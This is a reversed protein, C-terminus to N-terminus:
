EDEGDENLPLAGTHIMWDAAFCITNREQAEISLELTGQNTVFVLIRQYAHPDEPDGVPMIDSVAMKEINEVVIQEKGTIHLM